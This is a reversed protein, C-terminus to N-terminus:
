SNEHKKSLLSGVKEKLLECEVEALYYLQASIAATSADEADQEFYFRWLNYVSVNNIEEDVTKVFIM